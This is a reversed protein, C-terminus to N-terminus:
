CTLCKNELFRGIKRQVKAAREGRSGMNKKAEELLRLVRNYNSVAESIELAHGYTEANGITFGADDCIPFSQTEEDKRLIEVPGNILKLM